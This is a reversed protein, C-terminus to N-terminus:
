LYRSLARTLQPVYSAGFLCVHVLLPYLQYLRVREESGRERPYVEDYAAFFRESPSGFLRLMALDIERHGGYVAPDILVPAGREDSHVNGSWLDGHLRAPKEEPGIVRELRALLRDFQSRLSADILGRESARELLPELRRRRYFDSWRALEGNAQTLPGIFNDRVHGFSPAGYQHLRALGRGLREAFDAARPKPEVWSLVLMTDSVHRVAPVHLADAQALWSLGEAECAYMGKPADERTKVFLQEGDDLHVRYADNIDGGSVSTMHEVRKRLAHAIQSRLAEM